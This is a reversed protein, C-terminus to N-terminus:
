RNYKKCTHGQEGAAPSSNENGELPPNCFICNTNYENRYEAPTRVTGMAVRKKEKAIWSILRNQQNIRYDETAKPKGQPDNQHYMKIRKANRPGSHSEESTQQNDQPILNRLMWELFNAKNKNDCKIIENDVHVNNSCDGSSNSLESM